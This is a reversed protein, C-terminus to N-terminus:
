IHRRLCGVSSGFVSLGSWIFPRILGGFFTQWLNIGRSCSYTSSCVQEQLIFQCVPVLPTVCTGLTSARKNYSFACVVINGSVIQLMRQLFSLPLVFTKLVLCGHQRLSYPDDKSSLIICSCFDSLSHARSVSSCIPSSCCVHVKPSGFLVFAVWGQRSADMNTSTVVLTYSSHM